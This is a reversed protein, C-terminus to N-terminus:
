YHKKIDNYNKRITDSNLKDNPHIVVKPSWKLDPKQQWIFPMSGRLQVYSFLHEKGRHEISFVMETEATNVANVDFDCGRTIWRKGQRRRDRRTILALECSNNSTAHTYTTSIYGSIFGTIWEYAKLKLFDDIWDGNFMYEMRKNRLSYNSKVFHQLPNTLDYDDSFYWCKTAFLESMGQVYKRDKESEKRALCFFEMQQVQFIKRHFIQGIISAKTVALLYSNEEMEVIGFVAMIKVKKKFSM